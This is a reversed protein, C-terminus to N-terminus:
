WNRQSRRPVQRGWGVGGQALAGPPWNWKPGVAPAPPIFHTHPPANCSSVGFPIFGLGLGESFQTGRQGKSFRPYKQFRFDCRWKPPLARMSQDGSEFLSRGCAGRLAQPTLVKPWWHKSKGLGLGAPIKSEANPKQTM